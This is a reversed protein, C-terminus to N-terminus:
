SSLTLCCISIILLYIGVWARGFPPINLYMYKSIPMNNMQYFFCYDSFHSVWCKLYDFM